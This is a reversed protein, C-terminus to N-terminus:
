CRGDQITQEHEGEWMKKLIDAGADYGQCQLVSITDYIAKNIDGSRKNEQMVDEYVAATIM